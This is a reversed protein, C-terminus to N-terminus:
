ITEFSVVVDISRDALPLLTVSAVDFRLNTRQAYAERAAAVVGADIDLGVVASATQALLASGYGEGCAADLVRRGAVFRRAFAYRHWHEYAIEGSCSPLFREGTFEPITTLPTSISSSM